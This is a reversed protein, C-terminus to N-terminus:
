CSLTKRSATHLICTRRGLQALVKRPSIRHLLGGIKRTEGDVACRGTSRCGFGMWLRARVHKEAVQVIPPSDTNQALVM